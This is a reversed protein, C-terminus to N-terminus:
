EPISQAYRFLGKPDYKRKVQRLRDFNAGYYAQQWDKQASYPWNQFSGPRTFGSIFNFTEQTWDLLDRQMSRPQDHWWVAPRLLHNDSRHVYAMANPAVRNAQGGSWCMLRVEANADDTGGPASAVRDVLAALHDLSIPADTFRSCEELGHKGMKPVALWNLQADWYDMEDVTVDTPRQTLVPALLERATKADGQFCGVITLEPFAVPNGPTPENDPGLRRKNTVGTFGSLEDPATLMLRDFASWAPVIAEKGSFQMSYVTITKKPIELLQFTLSTNIGFNGGAAGRLGWFLDSNATASAEVIEGNALVLRTSELHDCTLGAWRTNDGIGGGLTLGAVGVTPCTGIPLMLPGGQLASLLNSNLAGSDLTVRQAKSDVTVKNMATTKILLGETTSAGIYNHGGGRAVPQVGNEVCWQVCTRVDEPTRCLAIARPLVSEYRDNAPLNERAFRSDFPEIVSGTLRRKLDKIDPPSSDSCGAFALGAGVATSATFFQRRTVNM